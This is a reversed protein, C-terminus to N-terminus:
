PLLQGNVLKRYTTAHHQLFPDKPDGPTGFVMVVHGAPLFNWSSATRDDGLPQINDYNYYYSYGEASKKVFPEAIFSIVGRFSSGFGAIFRLVKIGVSSGRLDGGLDGTSQLTLPVKPVPDIYNNIVIANDTKQTIRAFDASFSYNGPKPQAFAYSKLRYKAGKLGFVPKGSLDDHKMGYHLFAHTITAMAAGQSHGIVYVRSNAPVKNKLVPLVGYRDDFLLTFTAHAFGSHLTANEDDAFQVVPSLFQEAVVPHFIADELASPANSFVTGRIVVAYSGANIGKGEYLIWANQWPGFGNLDPDDFVTSEQWNGKYKADARDSIEQFLKRWHFATSMPAHQKFIVVDKAVQLRSDYIPVPNWLNPDIDPYLTPDNANKLRDDQNDLEVCFEVFQRAEDHRYGKNSADGSEYEMNGGLDKSEMPKMSACGTTTGVVGAALLVGILFRRLPHM